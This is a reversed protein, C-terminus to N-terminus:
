DGDVPETVCIGEVSGASEEREAKKESVFEADGDREENAMHSM